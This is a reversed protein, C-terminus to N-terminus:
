YVTSKVLISFYWLLAGPFIIDSSLLHTGRGEGGKKGAEKCLKETGTSDICVNCCYSLIVKLAMCCYSHHVTLELIICTYAWGDYFFSLAGKLVYVYVYMYVEYMRLRPPPSDECSIRVVTFFFEKMDIATHVKCLALLSGISLFFLLFFLARIARSAGSIYGEGLVRKRAESALENTRM